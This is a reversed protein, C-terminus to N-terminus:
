RRLDWRLAVSFTPEIYYQWMTEPGFWFGFPYEAVISHVQGSVLVSFNRYVTFRSGMEIFWGLSHLSYNDRVRETSESGVRVLSTDTRVYQSTYNTQTECQKSTGASVGCGITSSITKKSNAAIMHRFGLKMRQDKFRNWYRTYYDTELSDEITSSSYGGSYEAGSNKWTYELYFERPGARLGTALAGGYTYFFRYLLSGGQHSLAWQDGELTLTPQVAVSVFPTAAKASLSSIFLIIFIHRYM